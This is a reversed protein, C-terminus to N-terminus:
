LAQQINSTLEVQVHPQTRHWVGKNIFFIPNLSPLEALLKNPLELARIIINFDPSKSDVRFCKKNNSANDPDICPWYM